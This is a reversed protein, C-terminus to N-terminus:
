TDLEIFVQFEGVLLVGLHAHVFGHTATGGDDVLRRLQLMHVWVSLGLFELLGVSVGTSVTGGM